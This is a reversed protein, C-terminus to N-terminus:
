QQFYDTRGCIETNVVDERKVEKINPTGQYAICVQFFM